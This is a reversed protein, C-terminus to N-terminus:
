QLKGEPESTPPDLTILAGNGGFCAFTRRRKIESQFEELAAADVVCEDCCFDPEGDEDRVITDCSVRGVDACCPCLAHGCAACTPSPPDEVIAEYVQDNVRVTYYTANM